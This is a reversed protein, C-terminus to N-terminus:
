FTGRLGITAMGGSTNSLGVLGEYQVFLSVNRAFQASIGGTLLGFDKDSNDTPTAFSPNAGPLAFAYSYKLVGSNGNSVYWWEGGVYPVVVGFGTNFSRRMTFGLAAQTSDVDQGGYKLALGPTTTGGSNDTEKETYGQIHASLYVLKMYSDLSFAGDQIVVGGFTAEASVQDSETDGRYTRNIQFGQADPRGGALTGPLFFAKREVDFDTSGYSVIGSLFYDDVNFTAYGSATYGDGNVDGGATPSTLGDFNGSALDADYNQYGVAAGVVLGSVFGYDVGLTGGYFDSDYGDERPTRDRNAYGYDVDGFWAWGTDSDAEDGAAGGTPAADIGRPAPSVSDTGNFSMGMGSNTSRAGHRIADMRAGIGQFQRNSGDATLRRQSSAEEGSFQRVANARDSNGAAGVAYGYTNPNSSTPLGYTGLMENCRFYLDQEAGVLPTQTLKAALPACTGQIANGANVLMKSGSENAIANGLPAAQAAPMMCFVSLGLVLVWRSCRRM